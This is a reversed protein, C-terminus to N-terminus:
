VGCLWMEYYVSDEFESLCAENAFELNIEGMQQYGQKMMDLMEKNYSILSDGNLQCEKINKKFNNNFERQSM